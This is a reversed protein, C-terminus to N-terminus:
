TGPRERRTVCTTTATSESRRWRRATAHADRPRGVRHPRLAPRGHDAGRPALRRLPRARGAFPRPGARGAGARTAAARLATSPRTRPPWRACSRRTSRRAVTRPRRPPEDSGVADDTPTPPLPLPLARPRAAEAADRARSEPAPLLRPVLLLALLSAGLFRDDCPREKKDSRACARTASAPTTTTPPRGAALDIEERALAADRRVREAALATAISRQRGAGRGLPFTLLVM